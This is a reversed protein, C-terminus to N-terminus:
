AALRLPDLEGGLELAPGAPVREVQEVFRRGAQVRGVDLQQHALQMPEHVPVVRDDHDLVVHADDGARVPDDVEPRAGALFAPLDDRRPRRVLDRAGFATLRRGIQDLPELLAPPRHHTSAPPARDRGADRADTLRPLAETLPATAAITVEPLPTMIERVPTTGWRGPPLDLAQRFSVLGVVEGAELVPYATHRTALFVQDMFGQVSVSAPTTVPTRVMLDAVTLGALAARASTGGLEAEAAVLVFWGIFVFWVGSFDEGFIALALGGAIPLQGFGRGLAGATRTASLLDHRRAWLAARLM